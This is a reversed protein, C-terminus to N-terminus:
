PPDLLKSNAKYSSSGKGQDKGEGLLAKANDDQTLM